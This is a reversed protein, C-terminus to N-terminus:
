LRVPPLSEPILGEPDSLAQSLRLLVLKACLPINIGLERLLGRVCNLRATRTAIWGSRIRHPSAIAREDRCAM